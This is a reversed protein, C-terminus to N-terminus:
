RAPVAFCAQGKASLKACTASAEAKTAFPGAQLRTVAGVAVYFPQRGALSGALSRFLSEASSKKSFAGLQIRWAGVPAVPVASTPAVVPSKKAPVASATRVPAEPRQPAKTEKKARAQAIALGRQRQDLPIMADMDALTSKAPALGQAAARSVYAYALVPDVPVGDGNFLATGFLLLARPEGAEAAQRLWIMAKQRDGNQFLLIGLSTSADVHGTRAAREYWSQAISLNLPVGKGLRYAQALNFAADADGATALPRWIAVAGSYDNKQWAAIGDRVSQAFAQAPLVAMTAAAALILCNTFTARM